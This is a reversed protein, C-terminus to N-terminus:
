AVPESVPYFKALRTPSVGVREAALLLCNSLTQRVVGQQQWRRANVHVPGPLLMPWSLKRFERMLLLDEMLKVDPFGGLRDFASRRLFISQDGYALGTWRVRTSNGRELLRYALGPADIAQRFAGGEVKPDELAERVQRGVDTSLWNDAHLFLLVDGSAKRAGLNQQSARGRPAVIVCAKAAEASSITKDVSGGDVVLVENCAAAWCSEVARKILTAENLAPIIASIRM